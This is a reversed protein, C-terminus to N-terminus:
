LARNKTIRKMWSEESFSGIVLSCVTCDHVNKLRPWVSVPSVTAKSMLNKIVYRGSMGKTIFKNNKKRKRVFNPLFLFDVCNSKKWREVEALNSSFPTVQCGLYSRYVLQSFHETVPSSIRCGTVVYIVLFEKDIWELHNFLVNNWVM